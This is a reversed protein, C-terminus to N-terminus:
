SPCKSAPRFVRPASSGSSTTCTPSSRSTSTASHPKWASTLSSLSRKTGASAAPTSRSSSPGIPRRTPDPVEKVKMSGLTERSLVYRALALAKDLRVLIDDMDHYETEDLWRVIGEAPEPVLEQLDDLEEFGDPFLRSGWQRLLWGPIFSAMHSVQRRISWRAWEWQESDWDLQEDTLGEVEPAVLDHLTGFQPFVENGPTSDPMSDTPM